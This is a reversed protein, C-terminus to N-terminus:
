KIKYKEMRYILTHRTIGLLHAAKTQNNESKSLAQLILSKEVEEMNIGSEPLDFEKIDHDQQLIEKPLDRDYIRNGQSLIVLREIVNELERINGKWEYHVFM